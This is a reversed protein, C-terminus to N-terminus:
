LVATQIWMGAAVPIHTGMGADILVSELLKQGACKRNLLTLDTALREGGHHFDLPHEPISIQVENTRHV